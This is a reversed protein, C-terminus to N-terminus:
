NIIIETKIEPHRKRGAIDMVARHKLPANLRGIRQYYKHDRAQHPAAESEPIHLVILVHGPKIKSDSDKPQILRSNFKPLTQEVFGPM